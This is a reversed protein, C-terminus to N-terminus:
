GLPNQFFRGGTSIGNMDTQNERPINVGGLNAASIPRIAYGGIAWTATIGEGTYSM